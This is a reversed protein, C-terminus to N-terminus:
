TSCAKSLRCRGSEAASSGDFVLFQFAFQFSDNGLSSYGIAAWFMLTGQQIVTSGLYGSQLVCCAELGARSKSIAHM